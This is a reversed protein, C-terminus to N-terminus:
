ENLYQQIVSTSAHTQELHVRDFRGTWAKV